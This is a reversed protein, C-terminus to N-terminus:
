FNFAPLHGVQSERIRSIEGARGGSCGVCCHGDLHGDLFGDGEEGGSSIRQCFAWPRKKGDGEECAKLSMPVSWVPLNSFGFGESVGVESSCPLLLAKVVIPKLAPIKLIIGRRRGWVWTRWTPLSAPYRQVWLSAIFIDFAWFKKVATKSIRQQLWASTRHLDQTNATM